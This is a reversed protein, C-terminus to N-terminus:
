RTRRSTTAQRTSTTSSVSRRWGPLIALTRHGALSDRLRHPGARVLRPGISRPSCGGHDCQGDVAKDALHAAIDDRGIVLAVVLGPLDAVAHDVSMWRDDDPGDVCAVDDRGDVERALTAKAERDATSRM